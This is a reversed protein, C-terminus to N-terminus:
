SFKMNIDDRIFKLGKNKMQTFKLKGVRNRVWICLTICYVMKYRIYQSM